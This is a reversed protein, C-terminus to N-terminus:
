PYDKFDNLIEDDTLDKNDDNISGHLQRFDELFTLIKEFSIDSTRKLYDDSFCQVAKSRM